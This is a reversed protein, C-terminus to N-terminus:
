FRFKFARQVPRFLSSSLDHKDAFQTRAAAAHLAAIFRRALAAAKALHAFRGHQGARRKVKVLFRADAARAARARHEEAATRQAADVALVILDAAAAEPAGNRRLPQARYEVPQDLVLRVVDIQDGARLEHIGDQLRQLLREAHGDHPVAAAKLRDVREPPELAM